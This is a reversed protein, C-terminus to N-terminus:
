DLFEFVHRRILRMARRRRDGCETVPFRSHSVSRLEGRIAGIGRILSDFLAPSPKGDVALEAAPLLLNLFSKKGRFPRFVRFPFSPRVTQDKPDFGGPTTLRFESFRSKSLQTNGSKSGHGPDRQASETAVSLFL